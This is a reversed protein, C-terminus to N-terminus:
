RYSSYFWRRLWILVVVLILLIFFVLTTGFTLRYKEINEKKLKDSKTSDGKVSDVHAEYQVQHISKFSDPKSIHVQSFLLFLLM